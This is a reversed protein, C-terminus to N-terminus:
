KRAEEETKGPNKEMYIRMSVEASSKSLKSASGCVFIKAGKKFLESLDGREDWMREHVYKWWNKADEPGHRSFAPRVEVAGLREWGELEAQYLYDSEADRCGFYLLAPGMTRGGAKAMAAREQVFGRMPAIGTGAAIMIVPTEPDPPLHFAANTPRVFCRIKAGPAKQALYTSCVGNFTRDHGSRAPATQVDNTISALVPANPDNPQHSALPSTSISCQRPSFPKLMSLFSGFALQNNLYEELIDLISTRHALVDANYHSDSVLSLLAGGESAESCTKAIRELHRQSIHTGLEVRTALLEFITM